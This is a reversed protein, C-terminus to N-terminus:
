PAAGAASEEAQSVDLARPANLASAFGDCLTYVVPSASQEGGYVARQWVRVLSPPM